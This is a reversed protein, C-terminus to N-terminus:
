SIAKQCALCYLKGHLEKFLQKKVNFIGGTKPCRANTKLLFTALGNKPPLLKSKSNSKKPLVQTTTQKASGNQKCGWSAKHKKKQLTLSSVIFFLCHPKTLSNFQPAHTERKGAILFALLRFYFKNAWGRCRWRWETSQWSWWRCEWHIDCCLITWTWWQTCKSIQHSRRQHGGVRPQCHRSKHRNAGGRLCCVNKDTASMDVIDAWWTPLM